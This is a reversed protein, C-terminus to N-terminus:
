KVEEASWGDQSQMPGSELFRQGGRQQLSAGGDAGSPTALSRYRAQDEVFGQERIRKIEAMNQRVLQMNEKLQKGELLQDIAAQTSSLLDLERETVAGLAGGTPNNNRMDQLENFALNAKITQIDGQLARAESQPMSALLAGWGTTNPGVKSIARDITGILDDTKRNFASFSSQVKPYKSVFDADDKGRGQAFEGRQIAGGVNAIPAGTTKDFRTDGVVDTGRDPTVSQGGVELRNIRETGDAAYRVAYYKGDEGKVVAGNKGYQSGSESAERNLKGIQARKYDLELKQAEEANTDRFKGFDAAILDLGKMPDRYEPPLGAANPHQKIAWELVSARRPDNQPLRSAALVRQGIKDELRDQQQQQFAQAQRGDAVAQRKREYGQQEIARKTQGYQDIANSIPSFDLLANQPVNYQPLNIYGAM